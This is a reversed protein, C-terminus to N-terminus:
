AHSLVWNYADKVDSVRKAYGKFSEFFQQVFAHTHIVEDRFLTTVWGCQLSKQFLSHANPQELSKHILLFGVPHLCM